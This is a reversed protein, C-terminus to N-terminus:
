YRLGESVIPDTVSPTSDLLRSSSKHDDHRGICMPKVKPAELFLAHLVLSDEIVGRHAPGRLGWKGDNLLVCCALNHADGHEYAMRLSIVSKPSEM